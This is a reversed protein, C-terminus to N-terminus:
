EASDLFAEALRTMDDITYHRNISELTYAIGDKYWMLQQMPLVETTDNGYRIVIKDEEESARTSDSIEAGESTYYLGRDNYVAETGDINDTQTDGKPLMDEYEEESMAKAYVYLREGATLKSALYSYRMGGDLEEYRDLNFQETISPSQVVNDLGLASLEEASPLAGAEIESVEAETRPEEETYTNDSGSELINGTGSSDHRIASVILAAILIIVLIIILIIVNKNRKIAKNIEKNMKKNREHQRKILIGCIDETSFVLTDYNKYNYVNNAQKPCM